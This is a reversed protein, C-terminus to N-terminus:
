EEKKKTEESNKESKKSAKKSKTKEEAEEELETENEVKFIRIECLSLPYVKKLTISLSKQLNNRLIDEFIEATTKEKAYNLLEEKAKERLAKRVKRSVKRRTVLFPKIRVTGNKCEASFSDEVYNTGKRVMRKLFYPMIKTQRPVATAKEGDVKTVLQLMMSKGKLIRTLDYNIIRGDLDKLEYAQLQTEKNILPMEVDFFRKKKKAQAM